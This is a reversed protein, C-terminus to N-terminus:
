IINDLLNNREELIPPLDARSNAISRGAAKFSISLGRANGVQLGRAAEKGQSIMSVVFSNM